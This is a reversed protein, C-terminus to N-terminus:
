MITSHLSFRHQEVYARERELNVDYMNVGYKLKSCCLAVYEYLRTDYGVGDAKEQCRIRLSACPLSCLRNLDRRRIWVFSRSPKGVDQRIPHSGISQSHSVDFICAFMGMKNSVIRLLLSCVKDMIWWGRHARQRASQPWHAREPWNTSWWFFMYLPRGSGDDKRWVELLAMLGRLICFTVLNRKFKRSFM